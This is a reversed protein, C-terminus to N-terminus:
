PLLDSRVGTKDSLLVNVISNGLISFTKILDVGSEPNVHSVCLATEGTIKKISTLTADKYEPIFFLFTKPEVNMVAFQINPNEKKVRPLAESFWSGDKDLRHPPFINILSVGLTKAMEIITMLKALDMRREYTTISHIPCKTIKVLEALYETNETDFDGSSLVLDAGDYASAAILSLTKHLGYGRFCSTSVLFM